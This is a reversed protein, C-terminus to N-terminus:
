VTFWAMGTSYVRGVGYNTSIVLTAAGDITESGDGDITVNNAAAGGGEDKVVVVRNKMASAPPLTITVAAGTSTVAILEDAKVMTYSATVARRILGPQTRFAAPDATLKGDQDVFLPDKFQLADDTRAQADRRIRPDAAGLSASRRASGPGHM